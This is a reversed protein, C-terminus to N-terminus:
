HHLSLMEQRPVPWDYLVFRSNNDEEDFAYVAEYKAIRTCNKGCLRTDRLAHYIEFTGNIKVKSENDFWDMSCWFVTEIFINAHFGITYTQNYWITNVGLDDDASQCHFNLPVDRGIENRLYVYTKDWFFGSVTSCMLLALLVLLFNSSGAM